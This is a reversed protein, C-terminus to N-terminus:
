AAETATTTDDDRRGTGHGDTPWIRRDGVVLEFSVFAPLQAQVFELLDEETAWGTSEVVIRVHNPNAPAEGEAYVGGSDEVVAPRDTILELLEALAYATGRWPLIRGTTRVIRRQLVDPLSEDVDQAGIWAGMYRVMHDPAVSVDVVHEVNDAQVMFTDALSQFIGLFRVMFDDDLMALPLQDMLWQGRNM